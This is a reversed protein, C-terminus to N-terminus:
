VFYNPATATTMLTTQGRLVSLKFGANVIAGKIVSNSLLALGSNLHSHQLVQAVRLAAVVVVVMLSSSKMLKKYHIHFSNFLLIESENVEWWRLFVCHAIIFWAIIKM